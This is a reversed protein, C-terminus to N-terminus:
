PRRVLLSCRQSAHEVGPHPGRDLRAVVELGVSGLAQIEAVPALFRFTLDM